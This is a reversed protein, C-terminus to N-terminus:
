IKMPDVNLISQKPAVFAGKLFFYQLSNIFIYFCINYPSLLYIFIQLTTGHLM